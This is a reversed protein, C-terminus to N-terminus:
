IWPKGISGGWSNPNRIWDCYASNKKGLIAENFTISDAKVTKAILERMSKQCDLDFVGNEM